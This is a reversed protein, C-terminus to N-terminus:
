IVGEADKQLAAGDRVLSGIVLAVFGLLFLLVPFSPPQVAFVIGYGSGYLDVVRGAVADLAFAILSGGVLVVGLHRTSREARPTFSRGEGVERLLRALLIAAGLQAAVLVLGPLVSVLRVWIPILMPENLWPVAGGVDVQPLADLSIMSGPNPALVQWVRQIVWVAGVIACLQVLLGARRALRARSTVADDVKM